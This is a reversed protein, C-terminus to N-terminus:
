FAIKQQDSPLIRWAIVAFYIKGCFRTTEEPFLSEAATVMFIGAESDRPIQVTKVNFIILLSSAVDITEKGTDGKKEGLLSKTGPSM